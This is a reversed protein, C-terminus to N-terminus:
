EKTPKPTGNAADAHRTEPRIPPPTAYDAAPLGKGPNMKRFSYKGPAFITIGAKRQVERPESIHM